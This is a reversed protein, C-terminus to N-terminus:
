QRIFIPDKSIKVGEIILQMRKDYIKYLNVFKLLLTGLFIFNNFISFQM